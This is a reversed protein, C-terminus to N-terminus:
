VSRQSSLCVRGRLRIMQFFVSSSALCRCRPPSLCGSFLPVHRLLVQAVAWNFEEYSTVIAAFLYRATDITLLIVTCFLLLPLM